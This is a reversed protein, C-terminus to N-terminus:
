GNKKNSTLFKKLKKNEDIEIKKEIAQIESTCRTFWHFQEKKEQINDVFYQKIFKKGKVREYWDIM